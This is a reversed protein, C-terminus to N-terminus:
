APSQGLQGSGYRNSGAPRIQSRRKNAVQIWRCARGRTSTEISALWIVAASAGATGKSPVNRCVACLKPTHHLNMLTAEAELLRAQKMNHGIHEHDGGLVTQAADWPWDEWETQGMRQVYWEPEGVCAPLRDQSGTNCDAACCRQDGACECTISRHGRWEQFIRAGSRTAM